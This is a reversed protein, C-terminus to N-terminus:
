SNKKGKTKYLLVKLARQIIIWFWFWSLLFLGGIELYFFVVLFYEAAAMKERHYYIHWLLFFQMAIRCLFFSLVVFFGNLMYLSTDGKKYKALFWRIQLFITPIESLLMVIGWYVGRRYGVSCIYTFIGVVHHFVHLQWEKSPKILLEKADWLFYGTTLCLFFESISTSTFVPNNWQLRESDDFFVIFLSGISAIIAHVFSVTKNIYTCQNLYNLSSFTPSAKAYHQSIFTCIEFFCFAALIVWPHWWEMHFQAWEFSRWITSNPHSFATGSPVKDHYDKVQM